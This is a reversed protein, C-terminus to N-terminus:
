DIETDVVEELHDDLDLVFDNKRWNPPERNSLLRFIKYISGEMQKKNEEEKNKSTSCGM